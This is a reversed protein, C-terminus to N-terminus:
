APCIGTGTDDTIWSKPEERPREREPVARVGSCVATKQYIRIGRIRTAMRDPAARAAAPATICPTNELGRDSGPIMPTEEPEEKPATIQMKKPRVEIEM